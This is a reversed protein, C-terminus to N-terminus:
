LPWVKTLFPVSANVEVPDELVEIIRKPESVPVLTSAFILRVVAPPPVVIPLTMLGIEVPPEPVSVIM